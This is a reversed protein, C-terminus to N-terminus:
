SRAKATARNKGKGSSDKAAVPSEQDHQRNRAHKEGEDYVYHLKRQASDVLRGIEGGEKVAGIWEAVRVLARTRQEPMNFQEYGIPLSRIKRTAHGILAAASEYQRMCEEITPATTLDQDLCADIVHEEVADRDVLGCIMTAEPFVRRYFALLELGISFKFGYPYTLTAVYAELREGLQTLTIRGALYDGNLANIKLNDFLSGSQFTMELNRGMDIGMGTLAISLNAALHGDFPTHPVIIPFM